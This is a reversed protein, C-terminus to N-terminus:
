PFFCIWQEAKHDLEIDEAGEHKDKPAAPQAFSFDIGNHAEAQGLDITAAFEKRRGGPYYVRSRWDPTGPQASIGIGVLYRGAPLGRLEYNGQDDVPASKSFHLDDSQVEVWPTVDFPKGDVSTVHGSIQGDTTLAFNIQTCSGPSVDTDGDEAWLGPITNPTIHYKGSPLSQFEYEGDSNSFASYEIGDSLRKVLVQHHPANIYETWRGEDQDDHLSTNHVYGTIIGSDTMRVLRRLLTITQKTEAVPGSPSGYGLILEKTADDRFLYFLWQDGTQIEELCNGQSTTVTLEDVPDGLFIEHAQLQLRKEDESIQVASIVSGIFIYAYNNIVGCSSSFGRLGSVTCFIRRGQYKRIETIKGSAPKSLSLSLVASATILIAFRKFPM